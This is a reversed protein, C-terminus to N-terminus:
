GELHVGAGGGPHLNVELSQGYLGDGRIDSVLQALETKVGGDQVARASLDLLKEGPLVHYIERFKEGPHVAAEAGFLVVVLHVDPRVLRHGGGLNVLLQRRHAVRDLLEIHDAGKARPAGRPPQAPVDLLLVPLPRNAYDEGEALLVDSPYPRLLLRRTKPKVFRLSVRSLMLDVKLGGPPQEPEKEPPSHVDPLAAGQGHVRDELHQIEPEGLLKDHNEGVPRALVLLWLGLPFLLAELRSELLDCRVEPVVRADQPRM